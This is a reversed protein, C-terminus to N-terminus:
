ILRALGASRNTETLWLPSSFLM